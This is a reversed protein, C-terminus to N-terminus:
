GNFISWQHDAIAYRKAEELSNTRWFGLESVRNGNFYLAGYVESTKDNLNRFEYRKSDQRVMRVM